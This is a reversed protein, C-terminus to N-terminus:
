VSVTSSVTVALRVGGVDIVAGVDNNGRRDVRDGGV